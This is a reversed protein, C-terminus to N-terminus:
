RYFMNWTDMFIMNMYKNLIPKSRGGEEPTLFYVSAQFLCLVTNADLTRGQTHVKDGPHSSQGQPSSQVRPTFKTGQPSSTM